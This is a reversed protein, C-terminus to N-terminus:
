VDRTVSLSTARRQSAAERRSTTANGLVACPLSSSVPLGALTLSAASLSYWMFVTYAHACRNKLTFVTVNVDELVIVAAIVVTLLLVMMMMTMMTMMMVAHTNQGDSDASWAGQECTM